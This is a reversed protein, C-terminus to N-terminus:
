DTEEKVFLRKFAKLYHRNANLVLIDCLKKSIMGGSNTILGELNGEEIGTKLMKYSPDNKDKGPFM